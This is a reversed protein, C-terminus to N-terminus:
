SSQRVNFCVRCCEVTTSKVLDLVGTDRWCGCSSWQWGSWGGWVLVMGVKKGPFMLLVGSLRCRCWRHWLLQVSLRGGSQGLMPRWESLSLVSVSLHQRLSRWTSVPVSILRCYQRLSHHPELLQDTWWVWGRGSRLAQRHLGANWGLRPGCLHLDRSFEADDHLIYLM